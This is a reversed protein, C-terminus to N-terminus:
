EWFKWWRTKTPQTNSIDWTSLDRTNIFERSDLDFTFPAEEGNYDVVTMGSLIRGEVKMSHVGDISLRRSAWIEQGHEFIRLCFGGTIFHNTKTDYAVDEINDALHQGLLRRATADVLYAYGGAIILFRDPEIVKTVRMSSYCGCGFKGIWQSTNEKSSFRVWLTNDHDSGFLVEEFSGSPPKEHVIEALEIPTTTEKTMIRQGFNVTSM